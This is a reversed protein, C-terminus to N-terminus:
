ASTPFKAIFFDFCIHTGLIKPLNIDPIVQSLESNKFVLELSFTEQRILLRANYKMASSTSKNLGLGRGSDSDSGFQSLGGKTFARTILKIDTKVDNMDLKSFLDPYYEKLAPKLTAAIGEGSDSVVTQIHGRKKGYKQLGAFGPIPTNSHDEVNGFLESFITFASMYYDSSSHAVFSETLKQPISDDPDSPDILGFEVLGTNNGKYIKATSNAPRKPLVKVKKDLLDFFGARNFYHRTASCANFDIAVNKGALILQNLLNLLRAGAELLVSCKEPLIVLIDNKESELLGGCARLSNEFSRVDVWCNGELELVHQNSNSIISWCYSEDVQFDDSSYLYSNVRSKSVGIKKGIERGTIGPTKELVTRIKGKMEM